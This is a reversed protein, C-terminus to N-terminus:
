TLWKAVRRKAEDHPVGKGTDLDALGQEIKQRVYLKAMVDSVSADDPMERIMEIIAEKPSM